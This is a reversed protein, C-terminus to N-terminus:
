YMMREGITRVYSVPLNLRAAIEHVEKGKRLEKVIRNVLKERENERDKVMFKMKIM